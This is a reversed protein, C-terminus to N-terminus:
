KFRYSDYLFCVPNRSDIHGGLGEGYPDVIASCRQGLVRNRTATAAAFSLTVSPTRVRLLSPLVTAYVRVRRRWAGDEAFITIALPVFPSKTESSCPRF